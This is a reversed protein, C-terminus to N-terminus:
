HIFKIHVWLKSNIKQRLPKEDFIISHKERFYLDAFVSLSSSQHKLKHFSASRFKKFNFKDLSFNEFLLKKQILSINKWFFTSVNKFFVKFFRPKPVNLNRLKAILLRWSSSFPVSLLLLSCNHTVFTDSFIGYDKWIFFQHLVSIM